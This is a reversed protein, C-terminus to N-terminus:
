LYSSGKEVESNASIRISMHLVLTMMMGRREGAWGCRGRKKHVRDGVGTDSQVQKGSSLFKPKNKTKKM